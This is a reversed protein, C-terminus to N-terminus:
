AHRRKAFRVNLSVSNTGSVVSEAQHSEENVLASPRTYGPPQAAGSVVGRRDVITVSSDVVFVDQLDGNHFIADDDCVILIEAFPDETISMRMTSHNQKTKCVLAGDGRDRCQTSQKIVM